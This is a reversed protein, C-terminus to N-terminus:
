WSADRWAAVVRITSLRTPKETSSDGNSFLKSARNFSKIL